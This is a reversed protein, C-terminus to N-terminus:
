LFSRSKRLWASDAVYTRRSQWGLEPRHLRDFYEFAPVICEYRRGWRMRKRGPRHVHRHEILLNVLWHTESKKRSTALLTRTISTEKQIPSALSEPLDCAHIRKSFASIDASYTEYANIRLLDIYVFCAIVTIRYLVDLALIM